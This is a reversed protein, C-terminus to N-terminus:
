NEIEMTTEKSVKSWGGILHYHMHMVTQGGIKGNAMLVKYGKEIKANKAVKAATLLIEGLLMQDKPKSASLNEIHKKPIVLLHVPAIPQINKFVV